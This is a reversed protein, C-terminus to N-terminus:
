TREVTIVKPAVILVATWGLLSFCRRLGEFCLFWVAWQAVDYDFPPLGAASMLYMTALAALVGVIASFWWKRELESM